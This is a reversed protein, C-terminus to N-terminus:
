LELVVHRPLAAKRVPQGHVVQKKGTVKGSKAWVQYIDPNIDRFAWEGKENVSAAASQRGDITKAIVVARKLLEKDRCKLVGKMTFSGDLVRMTVGSFRQFKIRTPINIRWSLFRRVKERGMEIDFNIKVPKEIKVGKGLAIYNLIHIEGGPKLEFPIHPYPEMVVKLETTRDPNKPDVALWRYNFEKRKKILVDDIVYRFDRTYRFPNRIIYIHEKFGRLNKTSKTDTDTEPAFTEPEAAAEAEEEDIKGEGADAGAGGSSSKLGSPDTNRQAETSRSLPNWENAPDDDIDTVTLPTMSVRGKICSHAFGSTYFYTNTYVSEGTGPLLVSAPVLTGTHVEGLGGGGSRFVKSGIYIKRVPHCGKLHARIHIVNDEEYVYFDNDESTGDDPYYTLCTIWIDPSEYWARPVTHDTGDKIWVVPKGFCLDDPNTVTTPIKKEFLSLDGHVYKCAKPTSVTLNDVPEGALTDIEDAYLGGSGPVLRLGDTWSAIFASGTPVEPLVTTSDTAFTLSMCQSNIGNYLDDRFSFAKSTQIVLHISTKFLYDSVPPDGAQPPFNYLGTIIKTLDPMPPPAGSFLMPLLVDADGTDAPDAQRLILVPKAGSDDIKGTIFLVMTNWDNLGGDNVAQDQPDHDTTVRSVFDHYSHQFSPADAVVQHGGPAWGSWAPDHSGFFVKINAAPYGYYNVLTDYVKLMDEVYQPDTSGSLLVAFKHQPNTTSM